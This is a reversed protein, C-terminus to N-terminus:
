SRFCFGNLLTCTGKSLTATTGLSCKQVMKARDALKLPIQGDCRVHEPGNEATKQWKLKKQYNTDDTVRNDKCIDM